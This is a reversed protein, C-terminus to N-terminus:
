LIVTQLLSIHKMMMLHVMWLLLLVGISYILFILQIAQIKLRMDKIISQFYKNLEPGSNKLCTMMFYRVRTEPYEDLLSNLNYDHYLEKLISAKAENKAKQNLDM